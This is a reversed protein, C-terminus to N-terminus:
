SCFRPYELNLKKYKPPEKVSYVPCFWGVGDGLRMDLAHALELKMQAEIAAEPEGTTIYQADVM